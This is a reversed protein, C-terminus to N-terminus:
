FNIILGTKFLRDEPEVGEPPRNTRNLQYEVSLALRETLIVRMSTDSRLLYDALEDWVPQYFSTHRASIGPRLERQGRVRMSWRALNRNEPSPEGPLARLNEHAYLLAMSVSAESAGDESRYLTHKAGAGSSFRLDLRRFQDREADTFLFPSWTRRPHLDFSLAAYHNQAVLLGNSRGYRTRVSGDLEYTERDQHSVSLGGTLLRLARNGSQDTFSLEAAVKWQRPDSEQAGAREPGAALV